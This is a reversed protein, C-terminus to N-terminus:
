ANKTVESLRKQNASGIEGLSLVINRQGALVSAKALPPLCLGAQELIRPESFISRPDGIAKLEGDSLVVVLDACEAVLRMDHTIMIAIVMKGVVDNIIDMLKRIHKWDQGTTPEDLILIQPEKVLATAVAVRQREGRSLAQPHRNIYRDLGMKKLLDSIIQVKQHTFVPISTAIEEEVTDCFLQNDPNQFLFGVKSALNKLRLKKINEGFLHVDGSTPKLLGILIRALTSKGAGNNGVLAVVGGNHFSLSLNRLAPKNNSYSYYLRETKVIARGKRHTNNLNNGEKRVTEPRLIMSLEDPTLCIKGPSIALGAEVVQPLRIGLRSLFPHNEYLLRRPEGDLVMRGAEMVLVRTAVPLAEDLNHEAMMITIGERQNLGKLTNLVEEKGQPDLDSLPEDLILVRTGMALTAGIVLRQKEGASLQSTNRDRLGDMSVVRLAYDLRKTIEERHLSLNEPGFVIEDECTLNFIQSEPNQFVTGVLTALESAPTERTEKRVVMVKGQLKGEITHPILGNITMLLSSKGCGTPGCLLVFEGERIRVSIESLARTGDPYIFSVNSLEIM